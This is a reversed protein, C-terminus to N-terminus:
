EMLQLFLVLMSMVSCHSVLWALFHFHHGGLRRQETGGGQQAAPRGLMRLAAATGPAAKAEAGAAERGARLISRVRLVQGRGLGVATRCRSPRLGGRLGGAAVGTCARQGLGRMGAVPAGGGRRGGGVRYCPDALPAAAGASAPAGGAWPPPQGDEVACTCPCM